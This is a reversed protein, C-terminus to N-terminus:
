IMFPIAKKDRIQPSSAYAKSHSSYACGIEAKEGKRVQTATIVEESDECAEHKELCDYRCATLAQGQDIVLAFVDYVCDIVCKDKKDECTM